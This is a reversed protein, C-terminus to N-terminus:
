LALDVEKIIEQMNKITKYMSHLSANTASSIVSKENTDDPNNPATLINEFVIDISSEGQMKIENELTDKVDLLGHVKHNHTFTINLKQKNYITCYDHYYEDFDKGQKFLSIHGFELLNLKQLDSQFYKPLVPM